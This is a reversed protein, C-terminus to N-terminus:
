DEILKYKKGEFLLINKNGLRRDFDLKSIGSIEEFIGYDFNPLKLTQKIEEISAKEFSNRFAEKYGYTKLYGETFKAFPNAKKEEENMNEYEVWVTINFYFYNPFVINERLIDTEKGFIRVKSTDVNFYGTNNDGTNWNGSNNDGSNNDGTNRYGTNNDGTNRDGTNRYGTNWNGSNNGGTNNDGTNWNGTNWNGSNNDGTNNKNDVM